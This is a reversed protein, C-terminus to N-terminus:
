QSVFRSDLVQWLQRLHQSSSNFSCEAVQHHFRVANLKRRWCGHFHQGHHSNYRRCQRVFLLCGNHFKRVLRFCQRFQSPSRVNLQSVHVLVVCRGSGSNSSRRSVISTLVIYSKAYRTPWDYPLHDREFGFQSVFTDLGEPGRTGYAYEKPAWAPEGSRGEVLDLLPTFVSWALQLEDARVFNSADGNICDLILAEYADPIRAPFRAHYTLDLESVIPDYGHGPNKVITKLYIAEKPQIRMVLENRQKTILQSTPKFQLRIDVKGDNLAKGCKLIFPVGKWRATNIFFTIAAFTAANSTPPVTSDDKYGPKGNAAVYQGLLVNKPNIPELNQLVKAKEDRIAEPTLTTPEEMAILTLVQILHNQMVDRIIGIEDFYGGRGETGFPEKFTIQVSDISDRNWIKSLFLNAFRLILINKVMEKGLYHDIRYLEQEHWGAQQLARSLLNSSGLDHGFPKEIILRNWGKQTYCSSARICAAVPAFQSPPIALYFLRDGGANGENSAILQALLEFDPVSDYQGSVYELKNRFEPQADAIKSLVKDRWGDLTLKSRAYGFIAFKPLQSSKFLSHLGPFTKKYALDGSAGFV